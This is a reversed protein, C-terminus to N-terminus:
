IFLISAFLILLFYIIFLIAHGIYFLLLKWITKKISLEYYNKFWLFSIFILIFLELILFWDPDYIFEVLNFFTGIIFIVSQLHVIFLLHEVYFKKKYFLLSLILAVFPLLLFMGTSIYRKINDIFRALGVKTEMLEIKSSMYQDFVSMNTDNELSDEEESYNLSLGSSDIKLSTEQSTNSSDITTDKSNYDVFDNTSPFSLALIFFYALSIFLYLRVPPIYKTQQGKFFATTLFGPRFLLLKLTIFVKSDFNFNASLYDSIFHRLKIRRENNKQGCHPCYAFDNDFEKDCNPCIHPQKTTM